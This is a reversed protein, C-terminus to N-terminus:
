NVAFCYFSPFPNKGNLGTLGPRLTDLITQYEDNDIPTITRNPSRITYYFGNHLEPATVFLVTFLIKEFKKSFMAMLILSVCQFM